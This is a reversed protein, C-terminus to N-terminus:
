RAANLQALVSDTIDEATSFLVIPTQDATKGANDLVLSYNGAKGKSRVVAYIEALLNERVRNRQEGWRTLAQKDYQEISRRLEGLERLKEEAAKKKKDREESSLVQNNAEALLGSYEDSSKQHTKKLEDFGKSLDTKLSQLSVDAEKFKWYNTFVRSLDVTAVKFQAHAVTEFAGLALLALM